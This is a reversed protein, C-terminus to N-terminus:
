CLPSSVTARVHIQKLEHYVFSCDQWTPSAFAWQQQQKLFTGHQPCQFINSKIANDM